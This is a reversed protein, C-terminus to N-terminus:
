LLYHARVRISGQGDRLSPVQGRCISPLGQVVFTHELKGVRKNGINDTMLPLAKFLGMVDGARPQSGKHYTWSPITTALKDSDPVGILLNTLGKHNKFLANSLLRLLLVRSHKVPGMKPCWFM